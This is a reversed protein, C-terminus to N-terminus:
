QAHVSSSDTDKPPPECAGILSEQAFKRLTKRNVSHLKKPHWPQSTTMFNDTQTYREFLANLISLFPKNQEDNESNLDFFTLTDSRILSSDRVLLATDNLLPDPECFPFFSGHHWTHFFGSAGAAKTYANIQCASADPTSYPVSDCNQHEFWRVEEPSLKFDSKLNLFVTGSPIKLAILVWENSKAPEGEGSYTSSAMPNLAFYMGKGIDNEIQDSTEKKAFNFVAESTFSANQNMGLFELVRSKPAWHFVYKDSDLRILGKQLPGEPLSESATASLIPIFFLAFTLFIKKFSSGIM